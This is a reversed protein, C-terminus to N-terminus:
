VRKIYVESQESHTVYFVCGDVTMINFTLNNYEGMLEVISLLFINSPHKEIRILETGVDELGTELLHRDLYAVVLIESVTTHPKEKTEEQDEEKGSRELAALIDKGSRFTELFETMHDMYAEKLKKDVDGLLKILENFDSTFSDITAGTSSSITLYENTEQTLRQDIYELASYAYRTEVSDFLKRFEKFFEELPKDFLENVDSALSKDVFLNRFITAFVNVTKLKYDESYVKETLFSHLAQISDEMIYTEDLSDLNLDKETVTHINTAFTLNSKASRKHKMPVVVLSTKVPLPTDVVFQQPTPQVPQQPMQAPQFKPPQQTMNNDGGGFRNATPQNSTTPQHGYDPQGFRGTVGQNAMQQQPFQQAFQQQAFQQGHQGQQPFQQQRQMQQQMMWQQQPSMQQQQPFQQPFQQQQMQQQQQMWQQQQLWQQQQQTMPQGQQQQPQQQHMPLGTHPNQYM